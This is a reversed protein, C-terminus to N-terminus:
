FYEDASDLLARADSQALANTLVFGPHDPDAELVENLLRDHLDRDYLTRAYYRAYDVKISLDRDGSLAMAREFHERGAEFDGGLAPPRITNLVGLYHEVKAARFDSDLEQLRQLTSRVEPLRALAHWDDAHAQIYALWSLAFTYTAAADQSRLAELKGTFSEYPLQHIECANKNTACLGRRGYEFARTTLVRARNADDVFVVGYAAYLEAAAALLAPDHPSQEVMGDLMMLFAPAGDRVVQPDPQNLMATSINGALGAGASSVLSACGGVAMVLSLSAALGLLSRIGKM